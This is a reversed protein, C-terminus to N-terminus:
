DTKFETKTEEETKEETNEEETTEEQTKEEEPEEEGVTGAMEKEYESKKKTPHMLEQIRKEVAPTTKEKDINAAIQEAKQEIETHRQMVEKEETIIEFGELKARTEKDKKKEEELEEPNTEYTKLAVKHENEDMLDIEKDINKEREKEDRMQQEM